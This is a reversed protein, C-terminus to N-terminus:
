GATPPKWDSEMAAFGADPSRTGPLTRLAARGAVILSHISEPSTYEVNAGVRIPITLSATRVGGKTNAERLMFPRLEEPQKPVLIYAFGAEVGGIRGIDLQEPCPHIRARLVQMYRDRQLRRTDISRVRMIRDGSPESKTSFGFVILGGGSNALAAVDKSLEIKQSTRSLDYLERKAELWQSEFQGLLAQPAVRLTRIIGDPDGLFRQGAENAQSRLSNGLADAEGITRKQPPLAVQIDIRRLDGPVFPKVSVEVSGDFQKMIPEINELILAESSASDEPYGDREAAYLFTSLWVDVGDSTLTHLSFTPSGEEFIKTPRDTWTLDLDKAEAVKTYAAAANRFSVLSVDFIQDLPAAMAGGHKRTRYGGDVELLDDSSIYHIKRL